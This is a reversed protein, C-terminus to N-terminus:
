KRRVLYKITKIFTKLLGQNKLHNILRKIKLNKFYVILESLALESIKIKDPLQFIKSQNLNKVNFYNSQITNTGTNDTGINQTFSLKPHLCHGKKEFVTAYWFVAWSNIVKKENLIIQDYFDYSNNLNFEKKIKKKNLFEKFYKSDKKFYQWRDVWTGWGWCTTTKLFFYDGVINKTNVPYMYGSVHYVEKMNKYYNLSYNMYSLFSDSVLIDDELVIVAENSNLVKTIGNILSTGLGQNVKSEIIKLSKFGKIKNIYNRLEKIKVAEENMKPGDSFVYLESYKSLSNNLLSQIVKKTHDLRNYVFLV